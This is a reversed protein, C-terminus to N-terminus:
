LGGSCKIFFLRKQQYFRFLPESPEATEVHTGDIAGICQPFGHAQLYKDTLEQAEGETTPLRTLKPSLRRSLMPYEELLEPFPSATTRLHETFFTNKSIECFECSFVQALSEKKIFNCAEPM